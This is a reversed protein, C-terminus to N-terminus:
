PERLRDLPVEDLTVVVSEVSDVIVIAAEQTTTSPIPPKMFNITIPSRRTTSAYSLWLAPSQPVQAGRVRGTGGLRSLSAGTQGPRVSGTDLNQGPVSQAPACLRASAQRPSVM